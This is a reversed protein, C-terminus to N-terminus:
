FTLEKRLQTLRYVNTSPVANMTSDIGNWEKTGPLGADILADDWTADVLIWHNGIKVELNTHFDSSFEKLFIDVHIPFDLTLDTWQFEHVCVRVELGLKQCIDFLVIHKPTCSAGNLDLLRNSNSLSYDIDVIKYHIKRIRNYADTLVTM